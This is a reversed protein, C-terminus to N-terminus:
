KETKNKEIEELLKNKLTEFVPYKKALIRRKAPMIKTETAKEYEDFLVVIEPMNELSEEIIEEPVVVDPSPHYDIDAITQVDLLKYPDVGLYQKDPASLEAGFDKFFETYPQIDLIYQTGKELRVQRRFIRLPANAVGTKIGSSRAINEIITFCSNINNISIESSTTVRFCGYPCVRPLVFILDMTPRCFGKPNQESFYHKCNKFKCKRLVTKEQNVFPPLDGQILDEVTLDAKSYQTMEQAANPNWGAIRGDGKCILRRKEKGVYAKLYQPAIMDIDSVPFWGELSTPKEGYIEIITKLYPNEKMVPLGDAGMVPNGRRDILQENPNIVFYPVTEPWGKESKIGLRIQGLIPLSLNNSLGHIMNGGCNSNLNNKKYWNKNFLKQL